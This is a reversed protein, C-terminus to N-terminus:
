VVGTGSFFPAGRGASEEGGKEHRSEFVTM